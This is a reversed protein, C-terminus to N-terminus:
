FSGDAISSITVTNAPTEKNQWFEDIFEQKIVLENM